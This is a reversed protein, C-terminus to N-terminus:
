PRRRPIFRALKACTVRSWGGDQKHGAPASSPKVTSYSRCWDSGATQRFLEWVVRSGVYDPVSSSNRLQLGEIILKRLRTV